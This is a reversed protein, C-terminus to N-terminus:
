QHSWNYGLRDCISRIAPATLFFSGKDTSIDHKCPNGEHCRNSIDDIRTVSDYLCQDCWAHDKWKRLKVKHKTCILDCYEKDYMEPQFHTFQEMYIVLFNYIQLLRFLRDISAVQNCRNKIITKVGGIVFSNWLTGFIAIAIKTHTMSLTEEM